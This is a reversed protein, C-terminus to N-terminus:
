EESNFEVTALIEGTAGRYIVASIEQLVAEAVQPSVEIHRVELEIRVFTINQIANDGSQPKYSTRRTIRRSAVTGRLGLHLYEGAMLINRVLRAARAAELASDEDGPLQGEATSAARGYGYCDIWFKTTSTQNSSLNGTSPDNDSEFWTINVLPSRDSGPELNLYEEWPANREVFIRLKWLDPDKGAATALAQQSAIETTLILAIKDRVVEFADLTDILTPIM